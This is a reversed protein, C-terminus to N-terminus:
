LPFFKQAEAILNEEVTHSVPVLPLRLINEAMGLKSLLAKVGAPNGDEFLHTILKKISDQKKFADDFNEILCLDVLQKMLEPLANAIVSIVGSGGMKMIEATDADNGSILKFGDPCEALIEKCQEMNGSAEKIGIINKSANALKVTTRATLNVGTRGPVNYLIIPLPSSEAIAKFHQFLGEQTPKNYYPAVSLIASYGSLNRTKIDNIVGATNNGGIGLVLPVKGRAARCITAAIDEKEKLSLTPTEATTGLAVIYDCGGAIVSEVLQSLREFDVSLDKKFPTVLAVGLGDFREGAM